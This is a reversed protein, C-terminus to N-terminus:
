TKRKKGKNDQLLSTLKILRKLSHAKQKMSKISKQKKNNRGM